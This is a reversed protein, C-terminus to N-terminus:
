KIRYNTAVAYRNNVLNTTIHQKDTQSVATFNM